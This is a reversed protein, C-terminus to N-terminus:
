RAGGHAARVMRAIGERLPVVVFGPFARRRETVDFSRHVIPRDRRVSRIQVPHECAAAVVDAIERFSASEGSAVNLIGHSEHALAGLLIEVVHEVSVHDRLEEGEGFLTIVRDRLASRCMRNPGYADHTDGAGYVMTPRLIALPGHHSAAFMHERALHMAAYPESASACSAESVPSGQFPYVADSGVYVVHRCPSERLADCVAAGIRLNLWCSRADRGREPTLAALMVVSDDPHLESALVPAARDRTLDVDASGLARVDVGEEELAAVLHRGLFGRAGIVVVRSPLKPAARGHEIM